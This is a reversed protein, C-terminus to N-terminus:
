MDISVCAYPTSKLIVQEGTPTTWPESLVDWPYPIFKNCKLVLPGRDSVALDKFPYHLSISKAEPQESAWQLKM